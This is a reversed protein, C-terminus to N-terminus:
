ARRKHPAAAAAVRPEASPLKKGQGLLRRQRGDASGCGPQTSVCPDVVERLPREVRLETHQDTPRDIRAATSVCLAREVRYPRVVRLFAVPRCYVGAVHRSRAPPRTPPDRPPPAFVWRGRM